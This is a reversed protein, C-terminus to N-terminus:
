KVVTVPVHAHHIIKTAVSGLLLDRLTRMDGSSSLQVLELVTTTM